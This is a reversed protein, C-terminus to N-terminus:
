VTYIADVTRLSTWFPGGNYKSKGDDLGQLKVWALSSSFGLVKFKHWDHKPDVWEIWVNKRILETM